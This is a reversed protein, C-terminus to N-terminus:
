KVTKEYNCLTNGNISIENALPGFGRAGAVDNKVTATAASGTVDFSVANRTPNQSNKEKWARGAGEIIITALRMNQVAIAEESSLYKQGLQMQFLSGDRRRFQDIRMNTKDIILLLSSEGNEFREDGVFIQETRADTPASDAFTLTVPRQAPIMPTGDRLNSLNCQYVVALGGPKAADSSWLGSLQCGQLVFVLCAFLLTRVNEMVLKMLRM